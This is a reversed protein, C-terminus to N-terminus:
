RSKILHILYIKEYLWPKIDHFDFVANVSPKKNRIAYKYGKFLLQLQVYLDTIGHRFSAKNQ